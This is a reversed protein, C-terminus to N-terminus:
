IPRAQAEPQASSLATAERSPAPTTQAQAPVEGGNEAEPASAGCGSLLLLAMLAALYNWRKM